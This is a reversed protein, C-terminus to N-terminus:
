RCSCEAVGGAPEWVGAQAVLAVDCKPLGDNCLTCFKRNQNRKYWQAPRHKTRRDSRLWTHSLGPADKNIRVPVSKNADSGHHPATITMDASWPLSEHLRFEFSSDASFMVAPAHSKAAPSLFVLSERNVLTLALERLAGKWPRVRVRERANMPVLLGPKGGSPAATADYEFWHLAAGADLATRALKLIRKGADLAAALLDSVPAPGFYYRALKPYGPDWLAVPDEASDPVDTLLDTLEGDSGDLDTPGLPEGTSADTGRDPESTIPSNEPTSADPLLEGYAELRGEGTTDDLASWEKHQEHINDVLERTFETPSKLMELLVSRLKGPLWVERARLSHEFYGILGNAHDFDNHTCVVVDLQPAEGLEGPKVGVKELLKPLGARNGGGDVLARFTEGERHRELYFADGQAVGLAVLRDADRGESDADRGGTRSM